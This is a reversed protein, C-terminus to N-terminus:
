NQLIPSSNEITGGLYMPVKGMIVKSSLLVDYHKKVSEKKFPVVIYDEIDIDVYIEILVNNIGYNTVKTKLNTVLSSLFKIRVPIKPGLNNFYIFNSALGIPYYLVLDDKIDYDYDTIDKYSTKSVIEYLENTISQLVGYSRQVDYDISIIEDDKNKIITILNNLEKKSLSENSIFNMILHNNYTDISNTSIDLLKPTINLNIFMLFMSTLIITALIVIFIYNIKINSSKFKKM